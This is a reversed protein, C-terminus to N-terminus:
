NKLWIQACQKLRMNKLLDFQYSQYYYSEVIQQVLSFCRFLSRTETLFNYRLILNVGISKFYIEDFLTNMYM